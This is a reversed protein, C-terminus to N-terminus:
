QFVILPQRPRVPRSSCMIRVVRRQRVGGHVDGRAFGAEIQAHTAMGSASQRAAAM